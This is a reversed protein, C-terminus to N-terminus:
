YVLMFIMNANQVLYMKDVSILNEDNAKKLEYFLM